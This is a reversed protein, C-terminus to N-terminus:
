GYWNADAQLPMEGLQYANTEDSDRTLNRLSEQPISRLISVQAEAELIRMLSVRFLGTDELYYTNLWDRALM